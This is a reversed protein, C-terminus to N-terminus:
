GTIFALGDANFREAEIQALGQSGGKYINPVAGNVIKAAKEASAAIPAITDDSGHIIPTPRDLLGRWRLRVRLAQAADLARHSATRLRDEREVSFGSEKSIDLRSTWQVPLLGTQTM